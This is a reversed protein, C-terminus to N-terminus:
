STSRTVPEGLGMRAMNTRIAAETEELEAKPSILVIETGAAASPVHGPSWYFADGATVRENAGNTYRVTVEGNLVYGWHPCQCADNPLGKLMPAHDADGLFSVFNVTYGDLHETRETVIGYDNAIPASAQSTRPM